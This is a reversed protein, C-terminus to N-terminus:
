EVGPCWVAAHRVSEVHQVDWHFPPADKSCAHQLPMCHQARRSLSRWVLDCVCVAHMQQTMRCAVFAATM